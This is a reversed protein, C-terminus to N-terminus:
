MGVWMYMNFRPIGRRGEWGGTSPQFHVLPSQTGDISVHIKLCGNKAAEISVYTCISPIYTCVYTCVYTPVYMPAYM